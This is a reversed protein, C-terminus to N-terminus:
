AHQCGLPLTKTFIIVRSAFIPANATLAAATMASSNLESAALYYINSHASTNQPWLLCCRWLCARDLVVGEYGYWMPLMAAAKQAACATCTRRFARTWHM